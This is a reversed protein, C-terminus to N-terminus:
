GGCLADARRYMANPRASASQPPYLKVGDAICLYCMVLAGESEPTPHGTLTADFVERALAELKTLDLAFRQIAM